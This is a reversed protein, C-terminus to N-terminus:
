AITMLQNDVTVTESDTCTINDAPTNLLIVMVTPDFGERKLVDLDVQVLPDGAVVKQNTEVLTKFGEGKLNVTDIGIHILIEQGNDLTLGLAHGTPYTMAVTADAPAVIMGNAPKIAIGAGLSGSSFVQDNVNSLPVVEGDVVSKLETVDSDAAADKTEVVALFYTLIFSSAFAIGTTILAKTFNSPDAGIFVPLTLVGPSGFSYRILGSLGAFLGALGGSAIVCALVRKYKLTVGYLAPETIGTLGTVGASFAVQRAKPEKVRLAIAMAAGAEALNSALMGPGLINEHGFKSLSLAALPTLSVHMGIMVLLPTFAGMLTPVLWPTYENLFNIIAYLGDGLYSGLPGIVIVAAPATILVILLPKLMTKIINPSVKEAFKEVYSMFWVILIIPIVTSGYSVLRIPAGFLAIPKGAAVMAAFSPHLLVGGILLALYENTNFKRAASVALMMPLFFFAADAMFSLIQYDMGTTKLGALALLALVVKFMGGAILVTIIPSMIEVITNIVRKVVNTETTTAATKTGSGKLDYNKQIENYYASVEAGIIIQCQEGSIVAGLVEPVKELKQINFKSKDHLIFRLRTACHYLDSVNEAGGVYQMILDTVEKASRM